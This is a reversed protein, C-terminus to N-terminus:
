HPSWGLNMTKQLLFTFSPTDRKYRSDTSLLFSAIAAIERPEAMRGIPTRALMLQKKTLGLGVVPEPDRYRALM